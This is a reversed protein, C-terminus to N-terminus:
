NHTVTLAAKTKTRLLWLYPSGALPGMHSRLTTPQMKQGQVCQGDRKIGM